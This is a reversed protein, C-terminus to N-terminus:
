IKNITETTKKLDEELNTKRKSLTEILQSRLDLFVLGIDENSLKSSGLMSTSLTQAMATAIGKLKEEHSENKFLPFWNVFNNYIKNM